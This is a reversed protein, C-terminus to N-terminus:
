TESALLIYVQATDSLFVIDTIYGEYRWLMQM